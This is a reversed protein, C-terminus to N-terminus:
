VMKEFINSTSKSRPPMLSSRAFVKRWEERNKAKRLADGLNLGRWKLIIDKWKKRQRGKRRRPGQPVMKALGTSRPM